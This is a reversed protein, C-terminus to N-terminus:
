PPQDREEANKSQIPKGFFGKYFYIQEKVAKWVRATFARECVCLDEVMAM